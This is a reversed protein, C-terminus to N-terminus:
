EDYAELGSLERGKAMKKLLPTLEEMLALEAVRREKWGLELPALLDTLQEGDFIYRDLVGDVFAQLSVADLGNKQALAQLETTNKSARFTEYGKKIDEEDLAKGVELSNIYAIMDEQEEMMNANSRLLGILQEKSMKQQKPENQAYRAILTMIYDYDVLASAFLVFEFDLQDVVNPVGDGGKDREKQLRTATEIYMSKFSRLMDNPMTKEIAELQEPELDTHQDLQTKLRQVEKFTNIFEARAEDGKLNAIEEPRNELGHATMFAELKQTAKQFNEITKPAPDVLWIEKPQKDSEGSFRAIATDVAGQQSRFDLINGYPKTDNLVRNTRSFAQILGHYVLNKDVYLTNLFKSDFGTLLMDVVITIDIKEKHPLDTNSYKQSKIRTQVDQYYVDFNNINHNTDYLANYDSIIEKLAEKKVNPNVKNDERETPLDEQLQAIDKNGEAPPSFVCAINLDHELAKFHRFYEIAHNISSTALIANFKKDATSKDHKQLIAEAVARSSLSDGQKPVNAADPKFYDIHFRLVNGDDIAHTITYNHLEKEFIDETTKFTAEEGEISMSKANEEFIPTGTFGFLQSNPFFDKIAKHNKGFQSRHCEDFIFVVREHALPELREKYNKKNTGDLALGLKQITTVIVKDAYDTSLLRTVLTETNTNEEVCNEQFKNFEDRTQRDLDKRDVVFLVKTITDNEKLLTSAKFSTLTKGSGTTHWIYGNGRNDEICEAIAEVAYIQYPRMMMLQSESQVLVMYRNLMEALKCKSLFADSFADLEIIKKNKTDAYQYIPLFREDANFDFHKTNNNAFYWTNTRNSVIFLQMFSLLTSAYGNGADNKYKIIQQMARRPSVQLTKLEIQVLPLGNLLLIVDYRHFSDKTNIRLQNIVEFSNKCWDKINVLTYHLPTGDEREFSNIERLRKSTTFVNPNIIEELLRSFENDTLHVRNLEEFKQRFNQELATRTRIDPRYTYKLEQLKSIFDQEIDGEKVRGAGSAKIEYM